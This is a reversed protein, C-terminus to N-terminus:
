WTPRPLRTATGDGWLERAQVIRHEHELGREIRRRLLVGVHVLVHLRRDPGRRAHQLRGVPRVHADALRKRAASRERRHFAHQASRDGAKRYLSDRPVDPQELRQLRHGSQRGQGDGREGDLPEVHRHACVDGASIDCASHSSQPARVLARRRSGIGYRRHSEDRAFRTDRLKPYQLRYMLRDAIADIKASTGAQAICNRSGGCMNSDFAATPLVARQTFRSNATNTWDVHFEWLQLQDPQDDFQVFYNPAGAPPPVPGDLDAPLMGGLSADSAMDFYVGRAPGGAIMQSREFAVVGEGGWSCGVASCTFQNISMYYGDSWVGFKPYDNLKTFTYSYRNWAGLPSGTTSVAICQYFPGRPYNPLAFQSMLWRDAVEDYLVIPDGDNRTECAGGFGQWLTKGSVPGYVVSGAKNYVAFSLNVWQVYHSPGVDGNTDPPLVGSLNGIGDFIALPTIANVSPTAVQIAPDSVHPGGARGGRVPLPPHPTEDQENEIPLPPLDVLPPTRDHKGPLLITPRHAAGPTDPLTQAAALLPTLSAAPVILSLVVARVRNM